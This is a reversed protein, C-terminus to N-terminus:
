VPDSGRAAQGPLSRISGVIRSEEREKHENATSQLRGGRDQQGRKRPGNGSVGRKTRTGEGVTGTGRGVRGNHM